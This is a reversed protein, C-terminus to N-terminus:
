WGPYRHWDDDPCPPDAPNGFHRFLDAAVQEIEDRLELPELWRPPIAETGLLAGLINGTLAGTSDSDGSHNVALAVAEEFDDAALACFLAIALAEEAVWGGGLRECSEPVPPAHAALGIAADVAALCEEHNPYERLMDRATDTAARLDAGAIIRDILAALFGAALYGTPHGHTTAALECGLQFAEEGALGVPAVRMVTGCGKSDNLPEALRGMTGSRLAALCTRGPARAAWLQPITLLWGESVEPFPYRPREGQTELWRLYAHYVCAVTGGPIGKELARNHGRLLGEATFLTMQTDDTIAGLKGYAPTLDRIGAPGFRARIQALSLFEVPAGLADGVAGGLLSGAFFRLARRSTGDQSQLTM